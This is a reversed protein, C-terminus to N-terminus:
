ASTALTASTMREVGLRVAQSMTSFKVAQWDRYDRILGASLWCNGRNASFEWGLLGKERARAFIRATHSQSILYRDSIRKSTIPGIWVRERDGWESPTASMLDHLINSGSDAKAFNAVSEPPDCWDKQRLLLRAILPQVHFLLAPEECSLQYRHGGDIIDLARLHIDIYKRILEEAYPTALLARRRRDESDLPEVLRSRRMENLFAVVTNRSAVPSDQLFTLLGTAALPPRAPDIRHEFHVALTAHSLLWRQIDALYRVERPLVRHVGLLDTSAGDMCRIFREANRIEGISYAPPLHRHPNPRAIATM